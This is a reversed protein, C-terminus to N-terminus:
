RLHQGVVEGRVGAVRRERKTRRKRGHTAIEEHHCRVPVANVSAHHRGHGCCQRRRASLHM